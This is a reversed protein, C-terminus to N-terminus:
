GLPASPQPPASPSRRASSGGAGPSRLWRGAIILLAGIAIPYPAIRAPVGLYELIGHVVAYTLPLLALPSHLGGLLTATDPLVFGAAMVTLGAAALLGGVAASRRGAVRRGTALVSAATWVLVATLATAVLFRFVPASWFLFWLYLPGRVSMVTAPVMLAVVIRTAARTAPPPADRWALSLGVLFTGLLLGCAVPLRWSTFSVVLAVALASSGAIWLVVLGQVVPSPLSRGAWLRRRVAPWGFALPLALLGVLVRAVIALTENREALVIAGRAGTFDFAPFDRDRAYTAAHEAEARAFAAANEHFAGHAAPDGTDLWRYYSLFAGRYAALTALLSEEYALSRVMAQHLDPRHAMRSAVSELARRGDRVTEVAAFGEAIARGVEPRVGSYITTLASSWGGVLDWEMIWLLPPSEMGGMTVRREAFGRIYFGNEIAERSRFLVGSLAGVVEPEPSVERAVWERTVAEMDVGPDLALRSTAYVNADIWPWFGHLPYLSLPGSRLPGGDQTWLWTGVVNPNTALIAQLAQQHPVAMFDPFAGFGEFERRAQLEVLRRQSGTGFTANWPLYSFFDGQQFKTSVILNPSDLGALAKDYTAPDTHLTGLPGAGISWTRFVLTRGHEEFTPLLEGLMTRLAPVDGVEFESWYPWGERNFLPGAEGVRLIVGDVDPLNSFLEALGARFVQWTERRRVDGGGPLTRLYAALPPSLALMDTRLYVQFGREKADRFLAGFRERLVRHRAPFPGGPDYVPGGAVRDFDILELFLGLAVANSGYGQMRDLYRRWDERVRDYAADDIYPPDLRILDHFARTNHSYDAGWTSADAPIGVGGADVMRLPLATRRPAVSPSAPALGGPAAEIRFAREAATGAGLSAALVLAVVAPRSNM